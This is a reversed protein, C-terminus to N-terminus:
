AVFLLRLLRVDIGEAPNSGLPRAAGSRRRLGFPWRYRSATSKILKYPKRAVTVANTILREQCLSISRETHFGGGARRM